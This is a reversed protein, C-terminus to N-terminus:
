APAGAEVVATGPSLRVETFHVRLEVGEARAAVPVDIVIAEDRVSAGPQKEVVDRALKLLAGRLLGASVGAVRVTALRVHLEPGAPTVTWVTEFPVRLFMKYEGSLFVGEPTLRAQVKELGEVGRTADAVLKGLDADTLLLKLAQIEM